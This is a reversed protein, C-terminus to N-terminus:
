HTRCSVALILTGGNYRQGGHLVVGGEDLIFTTDVMRKKIPDDITMRLTLRHDGPGSSHEQFTLAGERNNPLAFTRTEHLPVEVEKRDVLKFERWAIFPARMLYPRLKVIKPDIVPERGDDGNHLAQIMPVDCVANEAHASTAGGLALAAIAVHRWFRM